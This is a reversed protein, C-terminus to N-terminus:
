FGKSLKEKTSQFIFRREPTDEKRTIDSLLKPVVIGKHNCFLVSCRGYEGCVKKIFQNAMFELGKYLCREPKKPEEEKQEMVSGHKSLKSAAIKELISELPLSLLPRPTTTAMKCDLKEWYVLSSSEDCVLGYCWNERADYKQYVDEGPSIYQGDYFCKKNFTVETTTATTTAQPDVIDSETTTTTTPLPIRVDNEVTTVPVTSDVPNTKLPKGTTITTALASGKCIPENLKVIDGNEGCYADYCLGYAPDFEELVPEGPVYYRGKHYCRQLTQPQPTTTQPPTTTPQVTTGKCDFKDWTSVQGDYGCYLGYCWNSSEDYGESIQEEPEYRRGEYFCGYTTSPTTTDPLTTPIPPTTTAPPITTKKKCNWRDWSIVVGDVSCISGYCWDSSEEYGSSMDSGPPYFKGNEYCGTPTTPFPLTTDPLTTPIPPTTAAPPTTSKKKCNWTDWSIVEGNTDCISGYCWDSSEDYGESIDSGPPFFKGNEYCGRRTPLTTPITTLPLATKPVTIESITAGNNGKSTPISDTVVSSEGTSHATTKGLETDVPLKETPPVTTILPMTSEELTRTTVDGRKCNPTDFSITEGEYSCQLGYCRHSAKDYGSSIMSGPPFFEGNKYCGLKFPPETTLEQRQETTKPEATYPEKTKLSDEPTAVETTPGVVEEGTMPVTPGEVRAENELNNESTIYKRTPVETPDKANPGGTPPETEHSNEPTIFKTTPVEKPDEINPRETRPETGLNKEPTVFKTTQAKTPYATTHFPTPPVTTPEATTKHRGKCNWTDWHLVSGDSSCRAGYCWDSSEDYGEYITSGPRYYKTNYYCGFPKTHEATTEPWPVTTYPPTTLPQETTELRDTKEPQRIEVIDTTILQGTRPQETTQLVDTTVLQGTRPQETTKIIDRTVLQGTRPQETTEIIGATELQGTRPQEATEIIGATELQGTRPQETTQFQDTIEPQRTVPSNATTDVKGEKTMVEIKESTHKSSTRLRIENETVPPVTASRCRRRNKVVVDGSVSCVLTYCVNKIKEVGRFIESGPSYAKGEYLCGSQTVTAKVPPTMREPSTPRETTKRRCSLDILKWITGDFRCIGVSCWDRKEDYFKYVQTFPQFLNGDYKCQSFAFAPGTVAVLICCFWISAM